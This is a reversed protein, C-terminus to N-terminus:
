YGVCGRWGLIQAPPGDVNVVTKRCRKRCGTTTLRLTLGHPIYVVVQEYRVCFENRLRVHELYPDALLFALSGLVALGDGDLVPFAAPIDGDLGTGCIVGALTWLYRRGAWMTRMIGFLFAPRLHQIEPQRARVTDLLLGVPLRWRVQCLLLPGRGVRDLREQFLPGRGLGVM